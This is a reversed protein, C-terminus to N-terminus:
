ARKKLSKQEDTEPNKANANRNKYAYFEEPTAVRIPAVTKKPINNIVFM